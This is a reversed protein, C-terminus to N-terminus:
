PKLVVYTDIDEAKVTRRDAHRALLTAGAAITDAYDELRAALALRASEAVQYDDDIRLRAIRDIPAIPLALEGRTPTDEIDFDVTRLTRRGEADARNAAEVALEAGHEQIHGALAEAAKASVRFDAANRRILADVPAFPLEVSM